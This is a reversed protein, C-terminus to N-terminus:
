RPDPRDVPRSSILKPNRVTTSALNKRPRSQVRLIMAARRLRALSPGRIAESSCTTLACSSRSRVAIGLAKAIKLNIILGIQPPRVSVGVGGEAEERVAQQECRTLPGAFYVFTAPCRAAGFFLIVEQRVATGFCVSKRVDQNRMVVVSASKCASM